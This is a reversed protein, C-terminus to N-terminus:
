KPCSQMCQEYPQVCEPNRLGKTMFCGSAQQKCVAACQAAAASEAEADIGFSAIALGCVAAMGLLRRM